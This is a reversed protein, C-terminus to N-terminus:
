GDEEREQESAALVLASYLSDDLEVADRVADFLDKAAERWNSYDLSEEVKVVDLEAPDEPQPNDGWLTAPSGQTYTFHIRVDHESYGATGDEGHAYTTRYTYTKM